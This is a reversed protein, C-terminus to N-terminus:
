LRTGHMAEMNVFFAVAATAVSDASTPVEIGRGLCVARMIMAFVVCAIQRARM